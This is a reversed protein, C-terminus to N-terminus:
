EAVLIFESRRNLRHQDPPCPTGNSCDNLLREEGYGVASLVRAPDIGQSVIYDRTSKARKDSLYKNYAEPGIADTHSEIKLSLTKNEKLVTVLKDLEQAYTPTIKYSDFGFYVNSPQYVETIPEEKVVERLYQSVSINENERTQM